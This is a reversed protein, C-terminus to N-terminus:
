DYKFERINNSNLQLMLLDDERNVQPIYYMDIEGSNLLGNLTIRLRETQEIIINPYKRDEKLQQIVELKPMENKMLCEAIYNSRMAHFQKKPDNRHLKMDRKAVGLYAKIIKYTRLVEVKELDTLDDDENTFLLADIYHTGDGSSISRMFQELTCWVYQTNNEKDDYQFSHINPLSQYDVLRQGFVSKDNYICIIDMDSNEDNVGFLHSGFLFEHEKHRLLREHQEKTIKINM